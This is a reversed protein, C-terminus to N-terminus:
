NMKRARGRRKKRLLPHKERSTSAEKSEFLDAQAEDERLTALFCIMETVIVSKEDDHLKGFDIQFKRLDQFSRVNIWLQIEM